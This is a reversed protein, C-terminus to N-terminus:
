YVFWANSHIHDKLFRFVTEFAISKLNKRKREKWEYPWVGAYNRLAHDLHLCSLQSILTPVSDGAMTSM